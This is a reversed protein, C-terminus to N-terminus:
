RRNFDIDAMLQDEDFLGFLQNRVFHEPKAQFIAYNEM